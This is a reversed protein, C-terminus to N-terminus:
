GHAQAWDLIAVLIWAALGLPLLGPRGSRPAWGFSSVLFCVFGLVLLIIKIIEM